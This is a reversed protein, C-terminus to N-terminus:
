RLERRLIKGVNSKPLSDSPLKVRVSRGALRISRPQHGGARLASLAEAMVKEM